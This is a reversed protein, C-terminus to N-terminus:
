SYFVHHHCTCEGYQGKLVQCNVDCAWETKAQVTQYAACNLIGTSLAKVGVLIIWFQGSFYFHNNRQVSTISLPCKLRKNLTKIWWILVYEPIESFDTFGGNSAKYWKNRM